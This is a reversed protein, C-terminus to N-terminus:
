LRVAVPMRRILRYKPVNEYFNKMRDGLNDHVMPYIVGKM